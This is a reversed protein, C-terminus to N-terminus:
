KGIVIKDTEFYGGGGESKICKHWRKKWDEFCKQSASKIIELLKQKSKEKIKEITIFRKAKMPTKLKPSLFFDTPPWTRHICHNLCSQPKTKLWFVWVCCWRWWHTLQYTIMNDCDSWLKLTTNRIWRVIKHCSNMIRWVMVISCYALRWMEDFKCPM